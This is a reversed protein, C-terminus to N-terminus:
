GRGSYISLWKQVTSECPYDEYEIDSSSLKGSVFGDVIRKEYHKFSILTDPLIRRVSGCKSCIYRKVNIQYCSGYETKVKRKTSDYYRTEGGCIICADKKSDM